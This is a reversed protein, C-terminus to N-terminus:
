KRRCIKLEEELVDLKAQMDMIEHQLQLCGPYEEKGVRGGSLIRRLATNKM